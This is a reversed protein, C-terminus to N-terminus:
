GNKPSSGRLLPTSATNATGKRFRGFGRYQLAKRVLFRRRVPLSLAFLQWYHAVEMGFCFVCLPVFFRNRSVALPL